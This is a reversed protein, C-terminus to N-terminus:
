NIKEGKEDLYKLFEEEELKEEIINKGKWGCKNCKWEKGTNSKEESNMGSLVIKVNDSGCKPCKRIKFIKKDKDLSNKKKNKKDFEEKSDYGELIWEPTKLKDKKKM